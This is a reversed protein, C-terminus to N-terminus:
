NLGLKKFAKETPFKLNGPAAGVAKSANNKLLFIKTKCVL